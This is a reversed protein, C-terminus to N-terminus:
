MSRIRGVGASRAHEWSTLGARVDDVTVAVNEGNWEHHDGVLHSEQQQKCEKTEARDWSLALADDPSISPSESSAQTRHAHSLICGRARQIQPAPLEQM